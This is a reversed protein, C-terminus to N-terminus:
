QEGNAVRSFSKTEETWGHPITEVVCVWGKKKAGMWAVERMTKQHLSRNISEQEVRKTSFGEDCPLSSSDNNFSVAHKTPLLVLDFREFLNPWLDNPSDVSSV